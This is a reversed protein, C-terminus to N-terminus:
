AKGPSGTPKAEKHREQYAPIEVMPRREREEIPIEKVDYEGDHPQISRLTLSEPTFPDLNKYKQLRNWFTQLIGFSMKGLASIEQNRHIRQALDVQAM